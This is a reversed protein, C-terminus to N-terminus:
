MGGNWNKKLNVEYGCINEVRNMEYNVGNHSSHRLVIKSRWDNTSKTESGSDVTFSLNQHWNNHSM